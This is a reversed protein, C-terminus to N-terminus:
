IGVSEGESSETSGIRKSETALIRKYQEDTVNTVKHEMPRGDAGTLESRKSYSKKGLTEAIFTAANLAVKDDDSDILTEIKAEAKILKREHEYSLYADAFGEYNRTKWGEMTKYPIELIEAVQKMNKGDLVLEKIKLRLEEDLVTPRGVESM